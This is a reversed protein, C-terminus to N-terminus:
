REEDVYEDFSERTDIGKEQLLEIIGSVTEESSVMAVVVVLSVNDVVPKTKSAFPLSVFFKLSSM